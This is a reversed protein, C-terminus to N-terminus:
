MFFWWYNLYKSERPHKNVQIYSHYTFLHKARSGFSAWNDTDISSFFFSNLLCESISSPGWFLGPKFYDMLSWNILQNLRSNNPVKDLLSWIQSLRSLANMPSICIALLLFFLLSIFKLTFPALSLFLGNLHGWSELMKSASPSKLLLCPWDYSLSPLHYLIKLIQFVQAQHLYSNRSFFLTIKYSFSPFM